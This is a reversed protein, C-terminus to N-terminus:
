QRILKNPKENSDTTRKRKLLSMMTQKSLKTITEEVLANRNHQGNILVVTKLNGSIKVTVIKNQVFWSYFIVVISLNENKEAKNYKKSYRLKLM